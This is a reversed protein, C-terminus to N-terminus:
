VLHLSSFHLPLLREKIPHNSSEPDLHYKFSVKEYANEHAKSSERCQSGGSFIGIFLCHMNKPLWKGSPQGGGGNEGERETQLCPAIRVPQGTQNLAVNLIDM